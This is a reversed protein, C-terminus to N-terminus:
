TQGSAHGSHGSHSRGAGKAVSWAMVRNLSAVQNRGSYPTSAALSARCGPSVKEVPLHDNVGNRMMGWDQGIVASLLGFFAPNVPKPSGSNGILM